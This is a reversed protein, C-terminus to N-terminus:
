DLKKAKGPVLSHFVQEYRDTVTEWNYERLVRERAIRGYEAVQAPDALIQNLVPRLATAGVKGAYSLGAGGLTELNEPTDNVIVCNGSAMAELLAPHTGGVGSSEVFAYTNSSLERYQAGFLYGTFIVNPGASAKLRHIYDEAYPADGVIVCKFDTALGAFAETLHHACNEPVLRGVFLIYRGPSLGYRALTAGPEIIPATAGYPIFTTAAGYKDLYYQQVVQSDTIVRHPFRTALYEALQLYKKAPLPWKDRKWDLGDVNLVVKQGVLRPLLAVPSNGVIFMLVVDYKQGWAHFGSIFSHVLTDLYKNPITPLKVLRMGRYFNGAYKIHHSRCYVTVEHGREVLRAGLEEACTEFGSYSAPVGRTGLLAIRM